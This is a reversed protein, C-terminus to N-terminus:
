PRSEWCLITLKGFGHAANEDALSMRGVTECDGNDANHIFFSYVQV